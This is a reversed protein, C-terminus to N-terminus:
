DSNLIDAINFRYGDPLKDHERSITARLSERGKIVVENKKIQIAGFSYPMYFTDIKDINVVGTKKTQLDTIKLSFDAKANHSPPVKYVVEAKYKDNCVEKYILEMETGNTKITSVVSEIKESDLHDFDAILRLGECLSEFLLKSKMNENSAKFLVLNLKCYTGRHWDEFYLTQKAEELTGAVQFYIEQYGPTMIEANRLLNSFLESYIYSYPSLDKHNEFSNYIRVGMLKKSKPKPADRYREILFDVRKVNNFFLTEPEKQAYFELEEQSVPAISLLQTYDALLEDMHSDVPDPDISQTLKIADSIRSLGKRFDSINISDISQFSDTLQVDSYVKYTRKAKEKAKKAANNIFVVDICEYTEGHFKGILHENLFTELLKLSPNKEEKTDLDKYNIIFRM